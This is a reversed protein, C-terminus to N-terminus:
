ATTEEEEEEDDEKVARQLVGGPLKMSLLAGLLAAAAFVWATVKFASGYADTAVVTLEDSIEAPQDALVDEFGRGVNDVNEDLLEELDAALGDPIVESDRLGSTFAGSMIVLILSGAIATGFSMGVNQATAQLGAAESTEDPNVSGLMFNSIQAATLGIGAGLAFMGVAFDLGSDATPLVFGLILAGLAMALAGLAILIRPPYKYGLKATTISFALVGISLPLITLGTKLANYGLVLQVFLPVMFLVGQQGFTQVAMVPVGVKMVPHKLISLRVIPDADAAERARSLKVFIVMGVVGAIILGWVVPSAWGLTSTQLVGFVLLGMGLVSLTAGKFDFKPTREPRAGERIRKSALLVLVVLVAEAWFAVRWTLFTTLLGGVIPGVAAGAAAVGGLSAYASARKEGSFNSRVLTNIAPVILASGLGELVSWGLILFFINPALATMVTGVGYIALGIQFARRAGWIQGLKGGSITFAAMTLTYLTIAMQISAVDTDLDAVLDSISVGIITTDIVYIFMATGLALLVGKSAAGTDVKASM